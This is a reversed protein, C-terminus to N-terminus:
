RPVLFRFMKNTPPTWRTKWKKQSSTVTTFVSPITTTSLVNIKTATTPAETSTSQIPETTSFVHAPRVSTMMKVVTETTPMMPTMIDTTPVVTTTTEMIPMVTTAIGATTPMVTMMTTPLILSPEDCSRSGPQELTYWCDM